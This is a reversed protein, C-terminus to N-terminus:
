KVESGPKPNATTIVPEIQKPTYVVKTNSDVNGTNEAIKVLLEHMSFLIVWWECVFRWILNGALIFLLGGALSFWKFMFNFPFNSYGCSMFSFICPFMMFFGILTILCAGIVYVIKILNLSIMTRFAFFDGRRDTSGKNSM